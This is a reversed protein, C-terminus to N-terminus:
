AWSAPPPPPSPFTQSLEPFVRRYAVAHSAYSIPLVFYAGVFCCLVGVLVLLANLLLLGLVGGFNAKCARFSLKAADLGSLKRDVVLPFAFLFFVEILISVVIVVLFFVLEFGFFTAMFGSADEPRVQGRPMSTMMVGVMVIYFPVMLVIMPIAKILQAVLGPVFYDFGKFLTGFEVQEGRQRQFLCLFIGCMMPGMLVIAFASGILIGVLAIGLFLWYRDKILAWGEKLCEVPAVVGSNFDSADPNMM